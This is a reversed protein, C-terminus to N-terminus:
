TTSADTSSQECNGLSPLILLHSSRSSNRPCLYANSRYPDQVGLDLFSRCMYSSVERTLDPDWIEFLRYLIWEIFYVNDHRVQALDAQRFSQSSAKPWDNRQEFGLLRLNTLILVSNPRGKSKSKDSDSNSVSSKSKSISTNLNAKEKGRESPKKSSM